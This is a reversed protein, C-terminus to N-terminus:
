EKPLTWNNNILGIERMQNIINILEKTENSPHSIWQRIMPLSNDDEVDLRWHLHELFFHPNFANIDPCDWSIVEGTYSNRLTCGKGHLFYNWEKKTEWIGEQTVPNKYRAKQLAKWLKKTEALNSSPPSQLPASVGQQSWIVAGWRGMDNLDINLDKIAEAVLKQRNIFHAIADLMEAMLLNNSELLRVM